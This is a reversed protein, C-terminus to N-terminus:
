LMEQLGQVDSVYDIKGTIKNLSSKGVNPKGIIAVKITDDDFDEEKEEPFNEYIEDLLDGMRFWSNFIYSYIVLGLNYFEYIEPPPEGNDVKNVALIVPKNTKRLM